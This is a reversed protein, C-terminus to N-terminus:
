TFTWTPSPYLNQKGTVSSGSTSGNRISLFWCEKRPDIKTKDYKDLLVMEALRRRELIEQEEETLVGLGDGGMLSDDSEDEM